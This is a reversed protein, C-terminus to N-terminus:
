RGQPEKGAAYICAGPGKAVRTAAFLILLSEMSSGVLRVASAVPCGRVLFIPCRVRCTMPGYPVVCVYSPSAIIQPQM